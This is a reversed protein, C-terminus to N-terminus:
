GRYVDAYPNEECLMNHIDLETKQLFVAALRDIINRTRRPYTRKRQLLLIFTLTTREAAAAALEDVDDTDYSDDPDYDLMHQDDDSAFDIDDM